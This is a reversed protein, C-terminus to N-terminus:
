AKKKAQSYKSDVFLRAKEIVENIGLTSTDLIYADEAPRLPSVDRNRDRADRVKIDELITEYISDIGKEHLEKLRRKARVEPSATVFIKCPAEPLVVLGIDRGDLVAGRTESSSEKAFDRQFKLLSERVEPYVSIESALNGVSEDRLSPNDLDEPKLSSAVEFAEHKQTAKIGAQLMKFAVARYLLGTDLHRLHYIKALRSALTGKGAGAPGDIAIIMFTMFDGYKDEHKTV